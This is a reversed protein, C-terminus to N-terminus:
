GSVNEPQPSDGVSIVNSFQQRHNDKERDLYSYYNWQIYLARYERYQIDGLKDDHFIDREYQHLAEQRWRDFQAKGVEKRIAELTKM